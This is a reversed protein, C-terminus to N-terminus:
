LKALAERELRVGCAAARKRLVGDQQRRDHRRRRELVHQLLVGGLADSRTEHELPSRTAVHVLPRQRGGLAVAVRLAAHKIEHEEQAGRGAGLDEVLDLDFPALEVDRPAGKAHPMADSYVPQVDVVACSFPSFSEPERSPPIAPM